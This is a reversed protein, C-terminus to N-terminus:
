EGKSNRCHQLYDRQIECWRYQRNAKVITQASLLQPSAEETVNNDLSVEEDNLFVKLAEEQNICYNIGEPTKGKPHRNSSPVEKVWM